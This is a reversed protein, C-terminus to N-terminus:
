QFEGELSPEVSVHGLHPEKSKKAEIRALILREREEISPQPNMGSRFVSLLLELAKTEEETEAELNLSWNMWYARM